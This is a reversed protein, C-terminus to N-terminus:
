SANKKSPHSKSKKTHFNFVYIVISLNLSGWMGNSLKVLSWCMTLRKTQSEGEEEM